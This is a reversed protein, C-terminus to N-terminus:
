YLQLISTSSELGLLTETGTSPIELVTKLPETSTSPTPPETVTDTSIAATDTSSTEVNEDLVKMRDAVM